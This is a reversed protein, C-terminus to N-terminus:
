AAGLEHRRQVGTRRQAREARRQRHHRRTPERAPHPIGRVGDGGAPFPLSLPNDPPGPTKKKTALQSFICAASNIPCGSIRCCSRSFM